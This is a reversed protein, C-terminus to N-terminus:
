CLLAPAQRRAPPALCPWRCSWALGGATCPRRCAVAAPLRAEGWGGIRKLMKEIKDDRPEGGKDKGKGEGGTSLQGARCGRWVM